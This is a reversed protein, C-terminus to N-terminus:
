KQTWDHTRRTWGSLKRSSASRSLCWLTPPAGGLLVLGKHTSSLDSHAQLALWTTQRALIRPAAPKPLMNALAADAFPPPSPGPAPLEQFAGVPPVMKFAKHKRRRGRTMPRERALWATLDIVRNSTNSPTHHPTLHPQPAPPPTLPQETLLCRPCRGIWGQARAASLQIPKCMKLRTALSLLVTESAVQRFFNKKLSQM